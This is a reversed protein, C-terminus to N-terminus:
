SARLGVVWWGEDWHGGVGNLHAMGLHTVPVCLCGYTARTHQEVPVPIIIPLDLRARGATIGLRAYPQTLGHEALLDPLEDTSMRRPLPVLGFGVEMTGSVSAPDPFRDSTLYQLDHALHPGSEVLEQLPRSFVVPVTGFIPQSPV